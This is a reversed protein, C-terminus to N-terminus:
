ERGFYLKGVWDRMLVYHINKPKEILLPASDYKYRYAGAPMYAQHVETPNFVRILAIFGSVALFTTLVCIMVTERINDAETM